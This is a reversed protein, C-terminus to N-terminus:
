RRRRDPWKLRELGKLRGPELTPNEIPGYYWRVGMAMAWLADAQNDDDAHALHRLHYNAAEVMAQKEARGHGTAYLKIQENGAVVFRMGRKRARYRILYHVGGLDVATRGQAGRFVGELVMVTNTPDPSWQAIHALTIGVRDEFCMQSAPPTNVTMCSVQGPGMWVALGTKAIAADVGLITLNM